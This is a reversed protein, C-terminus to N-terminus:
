EPKEILLVQDEGNTEEWEVLVKQRTATDVLRGVYDPQIPVDRSFRRDILALLEIKNPRGFTLLADLAARITRGTYLVDDVLVVNMGEVDFTIDTDHPTLIKEQKHIDDRYFTVDLNGYLVTHGTIDKLLEVLRKGVLIGRPQVGILITKSLDQHNEILQYCLRQLTLGFEHSGLLVKNAM